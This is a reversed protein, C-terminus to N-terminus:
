SWLRWSQRAAEPTLKYRQGPCIAILGLRYLEELAARTQRDREEQLLRKMMPDNFWNLVSKRM